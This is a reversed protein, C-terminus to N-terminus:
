TKMIGLMGAESLAAASSRGPSFIVRMRYRYDAQKGAAGEFEFPLRLDEKLPWAGSWGPSTGHIVAVSSSTVFFILGLRGSLVQCGLLQDAPGSLLSQGQGPRVPQQLLQSLRHRLRRQVLLQDLV